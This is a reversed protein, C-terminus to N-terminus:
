PARTGDWGGIAMMIYRGVSSSEKNSSRKNARGITAILKPRLNSIDLNSVFMLENLLNNDIIWGNARMRSLLNKITDIHGVDTRSQAIDRAIDDVEMSNYEQEKDAYAKLAAYTNKTFTHHKLRQDNRTFNFDMLAWMYPGNDLAATVDVRSVGLTRYFDFSTEVVARGLGKGQHSELLKFYSHYVSLTGNSDRTLKRVITGALSGDPAVVDGTIEVTTADFSQGQQQNSAVRAMLESDDGTIQGNTRLRFSYGQLDANNQLYNIFDNKFNEERLIKPYAAELDFERIGLADKLFRKFEESAEGTYLYKAYSEAFHEQYNNDGYSSIKQAKVEAYREDLDGGREDGWLPSISRHVTHAYEHLVTETIADKGGFEADSKSAVEHNILIVSSIQRTAPGIDSLLIEPGSARTMFNIGQTTRLDRSDTSISNHVEEFEAQTSSIRLTIASKSLNRAPTNQTSFLSLTTLAENYGEMDVSPKVSVIKGTEDRNIKHPVYISGVPANSNITSPLFQLGKSFARDVMESAKANPDDARLFEIFFAFDAAISFSSESSIRRRLLQIQPNNSGLIDASSYPVSAGLVGSASPRSHWGSGLSDEPRVFGRANLIESKILNARAVAAILNAEFTTGGYRALNQMEPLARILPSGELLEPITNVPAKIQEPVDDWFDDPLDFDDDSDKSLSM